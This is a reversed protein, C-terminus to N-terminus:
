IRIKIGKEKSLRRCEATYKAIAERLEDESWKMAKNARAALANFREQGIKAILNATYGDLHNPNSCNDLACESHCNDEDWRTSLSRRGHYHGCQMQEFPFVKGCSICVTRGGYMADRLRIYLSFVMDLRLMLGSKASPKAKKVRKGETCPIKEACDPMKDPSKKKFGCSPKFGSKAKLPTKRKLTSYAM